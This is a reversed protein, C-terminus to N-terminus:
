GEGERALPVLGSGDTLAAVRARLGEPVFEPRRVYEPYIALRERLVFGEERCVEQLVEIQPWPAEPNIFDRTLPSIGGWDNIGARLYWWYQGAALNPPAQLNMDQLVLRAVALTRLMEELPPEPHGAMPTGPKARFNQVIVEQIHGYRRHLARIALLSDVREERTEGIGVLIGTTFAVQLRGAAEITQLRRSPVKDPCRYHPMGPQLLRLSVNELMLGMSINYPRLLAVEAETMVGPNAHPLLGTREVVLRCMERLYELTTAYGHSQLWRRYAPYRLEPKDGLSFLAEKCGLRRGAEAVALVEEPTMTHTQPDEPRKAFGCYGCRDRCLNTLPLFVKRSYTVQRGKYRDRLLSAAELLASLDPGEVHMLACAEEQSPVQGVLARNM